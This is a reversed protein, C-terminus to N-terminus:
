GQEQEVIEEADELRSAARIKEITERLRPDGSDGPIM